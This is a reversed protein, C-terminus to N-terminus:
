KGGIGVNIEPANTYIPEYGYGAPGLDICNFYQHELTLTYTYNGSKYTIESPLSSIEDKSYQKFLANQGTLDMAEKYTHTIEPELKFIIPETVMINTRVNITPKSSNSPKSNYNNTYESFLGAGTTTNMHSAVTYYYNNGNYTRYDPHSQGNNYQAKVEINTGSVSTDFHLYSSKNFCRDFEDSNVVVKNNVIKEGLGVGFYHTEGAITVTAIKKSNDWAINYSSGGAAAKVLDTLYADTHGTPDTYM